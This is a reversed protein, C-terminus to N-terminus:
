EARRALAVLDVLTHRSWLWITASYLVIGAAVLIALRAPAGLEAPLLGKLMVIAVLMGLSAALPRSVSALLDGVSLGILRLPVAFLYYALAFAVVAHGAAV